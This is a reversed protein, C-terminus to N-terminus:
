TATTELEAIREGDVALTVSVTDGASLTPTNTGAISVGAREGTTWKPDAKANFPGEPAGDFGSAGVFPVPPQTSLETGNIAIMVELEEVDVADGAVHEIEVSSSNGDASLDFATTPSPSELSWAGVGVVVLAALCVTLAVLALVGVVPSIGRNSEPASTSAPRTTPPGTTM